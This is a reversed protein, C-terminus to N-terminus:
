AAFEERLDRNVQCLLRHYWRAARQSLVDVLLMHFYPNAQSCRYWVVEVDAPVTSQIQWPRVLTVDSLRKSLDFQPITLGHPCV